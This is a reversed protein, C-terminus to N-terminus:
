DHNKFKPNHRLYVNEKENLPILLEYSFFLGPVLKFIHFIQNVLM